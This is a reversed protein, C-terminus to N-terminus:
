PSLKWCAAKMFIYILTIKTKLFSKYFYKIYNGINSHLIKCKFYDFELKNPNARREILKQAYMKPWACVSTRVWFNSVAAVTNDTSFCVVSWM